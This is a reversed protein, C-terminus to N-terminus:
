QHRELIERAKNVAIYLTLCSTLPIFISGFVLGLLGIDSLEDLALRTTISTIVGCIVWFLTTYARVKIKSYGRWTLFVKSSGNTKPFLLSRVEQLSYALIAVPGTILYTLLEGAFRLKHGVINLSSNFCYLVFCAFVVVTMEPSILLQGGFDRKDITKSV